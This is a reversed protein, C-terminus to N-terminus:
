PSFCSSARRCVTLTRGSSRSTSQDPSASVGVFAIIPPRVRLPEMRFYVLSQCGPMRSHRRFSLSYRGTPFATPLRRRASTWFIAERALRGSALGDEAHQDLPGVIDDWSLSANARCLILQEGRHARAIRHVGAHAVFAIKHRELQYRRPAPRCLEHGSHRRSWNKRLRM